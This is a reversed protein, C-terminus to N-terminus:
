LPVERLFYPFKETQSCILRQFLSVETILVNEQGLPTWLLSAGSCVHGLHCVSTVELGLEKKIIKLQEQLLYRRQMKNVKEEVQVSLLPFFFLSCDYQHEAYM